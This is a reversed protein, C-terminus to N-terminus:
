FLKGQGRVPPELSDKPAAMYERLNQAVRKPGPEPKPPQGGSAHGHEIVADTPHNVDPGVYLGNAKFRNWNIDPFTGQRGPMIDIRKRVPFGTKSAWEDQHNAKAEDAMETVMKHVKSGPEIEPDNPDDLEHHQLFDPHEKNWPGPKMDAAPGTEYVRPRRASPHFSTAAHWAYKEDNRIAFAHDGESMDGPDGFSYESVPKDVDDAPRVMGDKIAHTTGHFFQDPNLNGM